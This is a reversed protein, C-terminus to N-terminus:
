RTARVRAFASLRDVDHIVLRRGAVALLGGDTLEKFCRSLTEPTLNLHGAVVNKCLTLEIQATKLGDAPLQRLLYHVLRQAPPQLSYSEIDDVIGKVRSSLSRLMAMAFASDREILRVIAERPLYLFLSDELAQVNLFYGEGNLMTIDGFCGGQGILQIPRDTGHWSLLSMKIKGYVVVHFGDCRDGQRFLVEKRKAEVRCVQTALAELDEQRAHSFLPVNRLLQAATAKTPMLM